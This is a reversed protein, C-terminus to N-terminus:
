VPHLELQDTHPNWVARVQQIHEVTAAPPADYECLIFDYGDKHNAGKSLRLRSHKHDHRIGQQKWTM